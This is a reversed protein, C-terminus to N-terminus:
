LCPHSVVHINADDDTENTVDPNTKQPSPSVVAASQKPADGKRTMAKIHSSTDSSSVSEASDSSDESESGQEQQNMKTGFVQELQQPDTGLERTVTKIAKAKIRDMMSMQKALADVGTYGELHGENNSQANGNSVSAAAAMLRREATRRAIERIYNDDDDDGEKAAPSVSPISEPELAEASSASEDSGESCSSADSEEEQAQLDCPSAKSGLMEHLQQADAGLEKTASKIAKAKIKDMLSMQKALAEPGTYGELQGATNSAIAANLRREATKRAIERIYNDDDDVINAIPSDVPNSVAEPAESSIAASELEEKKQLQMTSVSSRPDVLQSELSLVKGAAEGQGLKMRSLEKLQEHLFKQRRRESKMQAKINRLVDSTSKNIESDESSVSSADSLDQLKSFHNNVVAQLATMEMQESKLLQCSKELESRAMELKGQTDAWQSSAFVKLSFSDLSESYKHSVLALQEELKRGYDELSAQVEVSREHLGLLSQMQSSTNASSSRAEDVESRTITIKEAIGHMELRLSKLEASLSAFHKSVLSQVKAEDLFALSEARLEKLKEELATIAESGSVVGVLGEEDSLSDVLSGPPDYQNPLDKVGSAPAAKEASAPAKVAAKGDPAIAGIAVSRSGKERIAPAHSTPDVKMGLAMALSNAQPLVGVGSQSDADSQDSESSADSDDDAPMRSMVLAALNKKGSSAPAAKVAAKVAAKGDPAIAGIAVSRSGKERIAPAHSTPDVKMGLAM